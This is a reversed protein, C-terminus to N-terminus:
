AGYTYRKRRRMFALTVLGAALLAPLSPESVANNSDSALPRQVWAHNGPETFSLGTVFALVDAPDIGLLREVGRIGFYGVGEDFGIDSFFYETGGVIDALYYPDDPDGLWLSYLNDGLIPLIFSRFNSGDTIEYDYGYVIEPDSWVIQEIETTTYQFHWGDERVDPLLPNNIETGPASGERFTFFWKGSIGINSRQNLTLVEATGSGILTQPAGNAGGTFGAFAAQGGVGNTGGSADGTTWELNGYRGSRYSQRYSTAFLRLGAFFLRM